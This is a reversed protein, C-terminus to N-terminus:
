TKQLHLFHYTVRSLSLSLSICGNRGVFLVTQQFINVIEKPTIRTMSVCPSAGLRQGLPSHYTVEYPLKLKM